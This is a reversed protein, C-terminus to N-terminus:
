GRPRLFTGEDLERFAIRLEEQTNMVIPGHWAVPERLPRGTMLLFRVPEDGTEVVVPPGRVEGEAREFVVLTHDGLHCDRDIDHWGEGTAEFAYPDRREDFCAKGEFVYALATYGAPVAHSFRAQPPVDVVLYGPDVVVNEVPGRVGGIEGCVVRATAGGDLQAVPIERAAHEQYRPPMMKSAAPLNAWLQFGGM